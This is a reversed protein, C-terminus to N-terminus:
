NIEYAFSSVFDGFEVMSLAGLLIVVDFNGFKVVILTGLACYNM